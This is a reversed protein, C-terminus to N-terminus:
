DAPNHRELFGELATFWRAEDAAKDFGHGAEEFTLTEITVGSAKAANEVLRFQSFPVNTDKKGHAVLLPVKLRGIAHAPAVNDLDFGAGTVRERWKRAGKRSFFKADYRLMIKWNSVGAFSAACRYREPNRIAGWMAAYGGYSAGVLCVRRPDAIGEGVAWDMADDLDDQMKRGIEGAGLEEFKGGYGGSGRYNPQLVAYGRNALLQVEDDYALKDRVGYPGGHPLIVMPLGKAARGRPLTLYGAIKTGDRATFAIPRPRALAALPLGPRFEGILDLANKAQDFLYLAGPDAEGGGHVLMRSGDEARSGIWVEDTKLAAEFRKQLKATAPDLWVRRDRDDVFEVAMPKGSEDVYAGTVDWADNRYVTEIPKRAVLDYRALVVRGDDAEHLVFGEDAGSVIRRVDFLADEDDEGIRAIERFKEEASKRYTVRLKGSTWGTGMRVTGDDDAYWEWIGDVARQVTEGKHKRDLLSVRSVSPWDYISKQFSLLVSSGDKAVHLLDDGEPGGMSRPGVLWFEGSVVDLALLRTVRGEGGLVPPIHAVSVLVTKPGAWRHWNYEVTSGLAMRAVPKRSDVDLVVVAPGQAGGSRMAMLRGDPSLKPASFTDRAALEEVPILAPRQEGTAPTPPETGAVGATPLALAVLVGAWRTLKMM